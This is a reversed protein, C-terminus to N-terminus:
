LALEEIDDDFSAIARISPRIDAVHLSTAPPTSSSLSFDILGERRSRIGNTAPPSSLIEMKNSTSMGDGASTALSGFLQQMLDSKRDKGNGRETEKEKEKEGGGVSFVGITELARDDKAPSPPLGSFGRSSSRGFSPAYSGFALDDSSNQGRIGRRGMGPTHVGGETGQRKRGGERSGAHLSPSEEPETLSFIASNHNRQESLSHESTGKDSESSGSEAFLPDKAAQNQRDIECMKALLQEKKRRAEQAAQQSGLTEQNWKEAEEQIQGRKRNNEEEKQSWLSSTGKGDDEEKEKVLGTSM